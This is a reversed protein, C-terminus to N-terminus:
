HLSRLKLSLRLLQSLTESMLVVNVAIMVFCAIALAMRFKEFTDIKALM